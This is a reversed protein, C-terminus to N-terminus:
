LRTGVTRVVQKLLYYIQIPKTHNEPYVAIIEKILM